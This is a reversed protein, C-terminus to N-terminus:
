VHVLEEQLRENRIQAIKGKILIRVNRIEAIKNWLFGLLIDFGLPDGLISRMGKEFLRHEFVRELQIEDKPKEQLNLTTHILNCAAESTDQQTILTFLNEGVYTGKGLFYSRAQDMPLKQERLRLSSRINFFDRLNSIFRGLSLESEKLTGIVRDAESFFTRELAHELVLLKHTQEFEPLVRLLARGFVLKWTHLIQMVTQIDPAQALENLLPETLQGVPLTSSLIEGSSRNAFKGRLITKINEMDWYSLLLEFLERPRGELLSLINQTTESLDRRFVEEITQVTPQSGLMQFHQSFHTNQLIDISDKLNKASLFEQYRAPTLLSAKMGRIRANIYAYDSSAKKLRSIALNM